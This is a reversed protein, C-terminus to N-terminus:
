LPRTTSLMENLRARPTAYHVREDRATAKQRTRSHNGSSQHESCTRPRYRNWGEHRRELRDTLVHEERHRLQELRAKAARGCRCDVRHDVFNRLDAIVHRG